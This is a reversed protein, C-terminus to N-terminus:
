LLEGIYAAARAAGDTEVPRYDVPRGIEQPSPLRSSRPRPRTSTWAGGPATATSGTACTSTRSSTTGSRSTSSRGATPPSSWAHHHARGARGGPRLRGSPPLPRARLRAGGPRRATAPVRRTSGHGRWSWWGCRRCAVSPRRTPPSSGACCTVASALAASPSSACRSTPDTARARGAARERDGFDAPDFGTVYGAFDFHEGTWDRILPLDPGFADPVIDDANGVFIARDRLRPTRPRHARDDGRQLGRDPVGRPRRRRADAAVRRLRHALVYAARKQEPNEHLYYDLEWAEDGIWLDYQDERSSDHFVM